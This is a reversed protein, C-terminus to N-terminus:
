AKSRARDYELTRDIEIIELSAAGAPSQAADRLVAYGIGIRGQRTGGSLFATVIEIEGPDLQKLLGALMEIKESRRSTNAVRQSTEVVTTLLM